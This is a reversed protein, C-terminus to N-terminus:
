QAPRPPNEEAPSPILARVLAYEPGRPWGMADFPDDMEPDRSILHAAYLHASRHGSLCHLVAGGETEDLLRGLEATMAPDAGYRGGIPLEAYTMGRSEVAQRMDFPLSATEQPTRSNVVLTVGAAAWADLAALDPQAAIAVQDHRAVLSDQMPQAQAAAAGFLAGLLSLLRRIM